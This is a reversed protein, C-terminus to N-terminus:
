ADPEDEGLRVIDHSTRTICIDNEIFPPEGAQELVRIAAERANM